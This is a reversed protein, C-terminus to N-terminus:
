FELYEGKSALLTLFIMVLFALPNRQFKLSAFFLLQSIPLCKAISPGLLSLYKHYSHILM